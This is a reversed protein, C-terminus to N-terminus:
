SRGVTRMLVVSDRALKNTELRTCLFSVDGLIARDWTWLRMYREACSVAM